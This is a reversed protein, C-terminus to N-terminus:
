SEKVEACFSALAERLEHMKPPKNLVRDIHPPIDGESVLRQGWGTLLLVPTSPSLAKISAAVQRGDIHPMGLDTIVVSFPDASKLVSRFIDIGECGGRAAEVRHHDLKLTDTLSKLLLPDDDILLIHLHTPIIEPGLSSAHDIAVESPVEFTLRVTTGTGKASEIEIDASHRQVIGYVMALGLGTGREGKTTFFPEFCHLRTDEDMGVGTDSIEISVTGEPHIASSQLRTRLTLNGGDPMADAANFVLNILAERLESEVGMIAPLGPELETEVRIVIGRQQPMDHWRARTLDVVQRALQNLDVSALELQAERERYFERLRAVTAAVDEVSRRVIQLHERTQDDLEPNLMLMETYLAIPSLGNNIDHAIGSAMQGLSRLREQQMVAAQTQKLDEYAQQLAQYLQIQNSALAVHQSLQQLFECRGSDFGGPQRCAAILVGFVKQEVMLPAAVLSCLGGKALRQPFPFAVNRIDPEYVLQGRVCRSLGNEDIAIRSQETMGLELAIDISRVGVCTVTLRRDIEDYLCLCCFDIPQQEELTRVVVQFISNLDQREGIARTIHHLLNLRGLHAELKQEALRRETNETQLQRATDLLQSTREEVRLELTDRAQKLALSQSEIQNAMVNFNDALQGLEDRYNRKVRATLDGDAILQTAASLEKVPKLLATAFLAGAVIAILMVTGALAMKQRTMQIIPAELSTQPIIYFVTWPVTQLRRAVGYSWQYSHLPARGRFLGLDPTEVRAREFIDPFLIPNELYQRTSKGFRGQAVLSDIEATSLKGAPRFVVDNSYTHGIRIGQHDLLVASSDLGAKENSERMVDWLSDAWVWHVVMGLLKRDSGFVPSVYAITPTNGFQASTIYIDSIGGEGRLGAQVYPRYAYNVGEILPETAIKVTGTSDLIGVGRTHPDNAKYLELITRMHTTINLNRKDPPTQFLERIAPFSSLIQVSRLYGRNFTDVRNQIEDGRAQLLDLEHKLTDKRASQIDIFASVALPILSGFLVLFVVKAQLPWDM